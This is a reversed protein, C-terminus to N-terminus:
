PEWTVDLSWTQGPGYRGIAALDYPFRLEILVGGGFGTGTGAQEGAGPEGTTVLGEVYAGRVVGRLFEPVLQTAQVGARVRTEGLTDGAEIAIVPFLGGLNRRASLTLLGTTLGGLFSTM